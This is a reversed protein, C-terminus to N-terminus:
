RQALPHKVTFNDPDVFVTNALNPTEPRLDANTAAAAAETTSTNATSTAM